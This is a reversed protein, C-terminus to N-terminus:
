KKFNNYENIFGVFDQKIQIKNDLSFIWFIIIKHLLSVISDNQVLKQGYIVLILQM